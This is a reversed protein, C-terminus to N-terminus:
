AVKLWEDVEDRLEDYFHKKVLSKPYDALVQPQIHNGCWQYAQMTSATTTTGTVTSYAGMIDSLNALNSTTGM